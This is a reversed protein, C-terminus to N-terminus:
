GANRERLERLMLAEGTRLHEILATRARAFDHVTLAEVIEQHEDLTQEMREEHSGSLIYRGRNIHANLISYFEIMRQNRSAAVIARHFSDDNAFYSAMQEKPIPHSFEEFHGVIRTLQEQDATSQLSDIGAPELMMRLQFLEHVDQETFDTVVWGQRGRPEVLGESQLRHLAERVPTRSVGLQEAVERDRLIALPPLSGSIIATRIEEIAREGLNM